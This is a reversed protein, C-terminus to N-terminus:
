PELNLRRNPQPGTSSKPNLRRDPLPGTQVLCCSEERVAFDEVGEITNAHITNYEIRRKTGVGRYKSM